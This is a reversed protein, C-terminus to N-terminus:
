NRSKGFGAQMCYKMKESFKLLCNEVKGWAYAQFNDETFTM